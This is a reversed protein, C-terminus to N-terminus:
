TGGPDGTETLFIPVDAAGVESLRIRGFFPLLHKRSLSRYVRATSFRITPLINPEFRELVFYEFTIMV